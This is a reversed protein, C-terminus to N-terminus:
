CIWVLRAVNSSPRCSVWNEGTQVKLEPETLRTSIEKWDRTRKRPARYTETQRKYKMFGRIRDLKAPKPARNVEDLSADELDVLSPEHKPTSPRTKSLDSSSGNLVNFDRPFPTDMGSTAVLDVQSATQSPILDIMSQRAKDEKAREAQEELVRKYDLPLVRVFKPLVHHFDKLIRGALKSGTHHKHDEILQRLEAIQAPDSVPGLEVMEHNVKQAFNHAVDLVYAIGGSM